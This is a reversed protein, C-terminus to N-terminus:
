TEQSIQMKGIVRAGEHNKSVAAATAPVTSSILEDRAPKVVSSEPGQKKVQQRLLFFRDVCLSALKPEIDM